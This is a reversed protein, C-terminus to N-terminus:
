SMELQMRFCHRGQVGFRFEQNCFDVLDWRSVGRRVAKMRLYELRASNRFCVDNVQRSSKTWRSHSLIVRFSLQVHWHLSVFCFLDHRYQTLDF